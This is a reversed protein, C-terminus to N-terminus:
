EHLNKKRYISLTDSSCVAFYNGCKSFGFARIEYDEFIITCKEPSAVWSTFGPVFLIQERPWFPAVAKLLNGEKSCHRMGGGGIGALRIIEDATEETCTILDDEDYNEDCYKKNGTKCNIVSQKQSSICILKETNIESFGIYLLGGVAFDLREWGEPVGKPIQEITNLLRRRNEEELSSGM